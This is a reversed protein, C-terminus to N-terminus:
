EEGARRVVAAAGEDAGRQGVWDLLAKSDAGDAVAFVGTPPTQGNLVHAYQFLSLPSFSSLTPSLSLPLLVFSHFILNCLLM